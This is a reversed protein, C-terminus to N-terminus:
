EYDHISHLVYLLQSFDVPDIIRKHGLPSELIIANDDKDEYIKWDVIEIM